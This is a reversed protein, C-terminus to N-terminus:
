AKGSLAKSKADCREVASIFASRVGCRELEALAEITTGGPSSIAEKLIAPHTGTEKVLTAAGLMTQIALKQATAAPLGCLVGGNAMAELVLMMYAPGSGSIATVADFYHEALTEVEGLAGFLAKAFAFEEETLNTEQCLVSMGARCMAPTNPMVRLLRAANGLIKRYNSVNWGAVITIMAKGSLGASLQTLVDQCFQPKVALLLIDCNQLLVSQETTGKIGYSQELQDLRERSVDNVIIDEGRLLGSAIAGKIIAEGM